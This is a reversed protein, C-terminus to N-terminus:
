EDDISAVVLRRAVLRGLPAEDCSKLTEFERRELRIVIQRGGVTVHVTDDERAPGVFARGSLGNEAAWALAAGEAVQRAEDLFVNGRFRALWPAGAVAHEVLADADDPGLRGHMHGWPLTIATASFRHGGLHTSEWVDVDAGLRAVAKRVRQAFRTGYLACCADHNGHACVVIVPRQVAVDDSGALLAEMAAEMSAVLNQPRMGEARWGGPWGMAVLSEASTGPRSVLRVVSRTGAAVRESRWHPLAHPLGPTDLADSEWDGKPWSVLVLEGCHTASGLLPEGSQTSVDSCFTRDM